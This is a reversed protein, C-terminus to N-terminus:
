IPKGVQGLLGPAAEHARHLRPESLVAHGESVPAEKARQPLAISERLALEGLLDADALRAREGRDLRHFLEAVHPALLERVVSLVEVNVQRRFAPRQAFLEHRERYLHVADRHTAYRL